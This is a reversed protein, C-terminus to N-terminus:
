YQIRIEWSESLLEKTALVVSYDEEIFDQAVICILSLLPDERLFFINESDMCKLHLFPLDSIPRKLAESYAEIITM